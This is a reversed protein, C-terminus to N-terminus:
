CFFLVNQISLVSNLALFSVTKKDIGKLLNGQLVNLFEFTVEAGVFTMGSSVYILVFTDFMVSCKSCPFTINPWSFFIVNTFFTLAAESVFTLNEDAWCFQFFFYQLSALPTKKWHKEFRWIGFYINRFVIRFKFNLNGVLLLLCCIWIELESYYNPINKNQLNSFRITSESFLM